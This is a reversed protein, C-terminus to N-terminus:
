YDQSLPLGEQSDPGNAQSSEQHLCHEYWRDWVLSMSFVDDTQLSYRVRDFDTRHLLAVKSLLLSSDILFEHESNIRRMGGGSSLGLDNGGHLQSLAVFTSSPTLDKANREVSPSPGRSSSSSSSSSSNSATNVTGILKEIRVQMPCGAARRTFTLIKGLARGTMANSGGGSSHNNANEGVQYYVIDYKIFREGNVSSKFSSPKQIPETPVSFMESISPEVFTGLQVCSTVWDVTVVQMNSAVTPHINLMGPVEQPRLIHQILQFEEYSLQDPEQKHGNGAGGKSSPKSRKIKNNHQSTSSYAAFAECYAMSDVVIYDVVIKKGNIVSEGDLLAQLFAKDDRGVVSAGAANLINFFLTSSLNLMRLGDFAALPPRQHQQLERDFPHSGPGVNASTVHTEYNVWHHPFIMYPRVPSLGTPLEYENLSVYSNSQSCMRVWSHHVLPVGAIIALLYKERRFYNPESLFLVREGVVETQFSDQVKGGHLKILKVIEM